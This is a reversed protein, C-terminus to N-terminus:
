DKDQCGIIKETKWKDVLDTMSEWVGDIRKAPFKDDRIWIKVTGWSRRTYAVIEKIGSLNKNM